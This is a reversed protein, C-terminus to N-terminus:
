TATVASYADVLGFGKDYSSTPGYCGPLTVSAYSAGDSFKYATCKVKLELTAPSWTPHKQLMLALVGAVHPAAQSTGSLVIYNPDLLGMGTTSGAPPV